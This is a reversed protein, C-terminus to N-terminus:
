RLRLMQAVVRAARDLGDTFTTINNIAAHGQVIMRGAAAGVQPFTEGMRAVAGAMASEQFARAIPAIELLGEARLLYSYNRLMAFSELAQGMRFILAIPLLAIIEIANARVFAMKNTTTRYRGALDIGLVVIAMLNAMEHMDAQRGSPAAWWSVWSGIEAVCIVVSSLIAFTVAWAWLVRQKRQLSSVRVNELYRKHSAAAHRIRGTFSKRAIRGGKQNWKADPSPLINWSTGKKQRASKIEPKKGGRMAQAKGMKKAGRTNPM